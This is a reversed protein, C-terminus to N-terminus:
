APALLPGYAARFIAEGRSRLVARRVPAPLHRTPDRRRSQRLVWAARPRRRAEFAALAAPVTRARGLEEALVVADELALAAGQAMNPSTAHAADGVLVVPGRVWAPLDVDEIVAAQVREMRELLAPVPGGFGGFLERVRALPDAPPAPATGRPVEEDAYVYLQGGGIPVILFSTGAGRLHTWADLPPGGAVVSRYALQGVPRAAGGLGALGRVGSRRGDAAVVLDYDARSGDGFAVTAADGAIELGCVQTDHRVDGGAGTLLVEHLDARPLGRCEGTAGWLQVADIDVLLDGASSRVEQRTIMAGLPRVAEHLGLARLARAANGPLYIGTGPVTTAPLKEVVDPRFGALRLTRAAALGATGAGVVLIRLETDVM